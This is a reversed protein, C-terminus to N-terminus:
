AKGAKRTLDFIDLLRRTDGKVEYVEIITVRPRDDEDRRRRELRNLRQTLRM